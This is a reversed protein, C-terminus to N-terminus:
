RIPKLFEDSGNKNLLTSINQRAKKNSLNIQILDGNPMIGEIRNFNRYMEYM